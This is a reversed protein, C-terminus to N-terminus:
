SEPTIHSRNELMLCQASLVVSCDVLVSLVSCFSAIGSLLYSLDILTGVFM